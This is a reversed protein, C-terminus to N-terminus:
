GGPGAGEPGNSWDGRGRCRGASPLAIRGLRECEAAGKAGSPPRAGRSKRPSATGSNPKPELPEPVLKGARSVAAWLGRRRPGAVAAGLWVGRAGSAGRSEPVRVPRGELRPGRPAWRGPRGGEERAPGDGAAGAGTPRRPRPDGPPPAPEM